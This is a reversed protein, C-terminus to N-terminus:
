LFQSGFIVFCGSKVLQFGAFYHEEQLLGGNRKCLFELTWDEVALEPNKDVPGGFTQLAKKAIYYKTVAQTIGLVPIKITGKELMPADDAALLEGGALGINKWSKQHGPNNSSDLHM